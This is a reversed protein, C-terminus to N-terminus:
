KRYIRQISLDKPFGCDSLRAHFRQNINPWIGKSFCHYVSPDESFPPYLSLLILNMDEKEKDKGEEKERGRGEKRGKKKGGDKM